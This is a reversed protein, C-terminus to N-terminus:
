NVAMVLQYIIRNEFGNPMIEGMNSKAQIDSFIGDDKQYRMYGLIDSMKDFGDWTIVSYPAKNGSPHIISSMGWTTIGGTGTSINKQHFPKWLTLNEEIFAGRNTPKGYNVIIYKADGAVLGEQQMWLAGVTKTFSQTEVHDPNAGMAKMNDESWVAAQDISNHDKWTNVFIYNPEGPLSVGVKRWLAWSLLHGKDIASKAVKSWYMTEKEVFEAEKDDPVIRAQVFSVQAITSCTVLLCVLLTILNKM